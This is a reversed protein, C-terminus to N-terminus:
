YGSVAGGTSTGAGAKKTILTGAPSIVYWLGGSSNLAQGHDTGATPDAV